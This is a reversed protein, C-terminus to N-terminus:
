ARHQSTSFIFITSLPPTCVCFLLSSLLLQPHPHAPFLSDKFHYFDTTSKKKSRKLFLPSMNGAAATSPNNKSKYLSVLELLPVGALAMARSAFALHRRQIQLAAQTYGFLQDEKLAGQPRSIHMNEKISIPSLHGYLGTSRNIHLFSKLTISRYM